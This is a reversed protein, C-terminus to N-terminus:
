PDFTIRPNLISIGQYPIPYSLESILGIAASSPRGRGRKQILVPQELGNGTMAVEINGSDVWEVAVSLYDQLNSLPYFRAAAAQFRSQPGNFSVEAAYGSTSPFPVLSLTLLQEARSEGGASLNVTAFTWNDAPDIAFYNLGLVLSLRLGQFQYENLDTFLYATDGPTLPPIPAFQVDCPLNQPQLFWSGDFSIWDGNGAVLDDDCLQLEAMAPSLSFVFALAAFRLSYKM